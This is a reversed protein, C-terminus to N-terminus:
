STSSIINSCKSLNEITELVSSYFENDNHTRLNFIGDIECENAATNVGTAQLLNALM